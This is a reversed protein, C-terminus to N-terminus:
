EIFYIYNINGRFQRIYFLFICGIFFYFFLNFILFSIFLYIPNLNNITEKDSYLSYLSYIHTYSLCILFSLIFEQSLQNYFYKFELLSSSLFFILIYFYIM